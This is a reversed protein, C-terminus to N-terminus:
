SRQQSSAASSFCTTTRSVGCQFVTAYLVADVKGAFDICAKLDTETDFALLVAVKQHFYPVGKAAASIACHKDIFEDKVINVSLDNDAKM